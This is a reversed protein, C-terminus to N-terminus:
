CTVSYLVQSNVRTYIRHKNVNTIKSITGDFNEFIETM